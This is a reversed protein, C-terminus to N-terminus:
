RRGVANTAAQHDSRPDDRRGSAWRTSQYRSGPRLNTATRGGGCPLGDLQHGLCINATLGTIQSQYATKIPLPLLASFNLPLGEGGMRVTSGASRTCTTACRALTFPPFPRLFLSLISSITPYLDSAFSGHKRSSRVCLCLSAFPHLHPPSSPSAQTQQFPAAQRSPTLGYARKVGLRSPTFSHLYSPAVQTDRVM